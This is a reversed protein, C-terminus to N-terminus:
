KRITVRVTEESLRPELADCAYRLEALELSM